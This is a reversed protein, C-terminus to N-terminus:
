RSAATSCLVSQHQTAGHLAGGYSWCTQLSRLWHNPPDCSCPCPLQLAWTFLQEFCSGAYSDTVAAHANVPAQNSSAAQRKRHRPQGLNCQLLLPPSPRLLPVRLKYSPPTGAVKHAASPRRYTESRTQSRLATKPYPLHGNAFARPKGSSLVLADDHDRRM